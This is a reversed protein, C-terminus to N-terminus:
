KKYQVKKKKKKPLNHNKKNNNNRIRDINLVNHVVQQVGLQQLYFM